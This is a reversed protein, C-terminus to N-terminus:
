ESGMGLTERVNESEGNGSEIILTKTSMRTPKEPKNTEGDQNLLRRCMEKM